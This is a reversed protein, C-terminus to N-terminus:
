YFQKWLFFIDGRGRVGRGLECVLWVCLGLVWHSKETKRRQGQFNPKWWFWILKKKRGLITDVFKPLLGVVPESFITCVFFFFFFWNKEVARVKFILYLDSFDLGKNHGLSIDTVIQHSDLWQNVLYQASLYTPQWCWCWHWWRSGCWFWYTRRGM